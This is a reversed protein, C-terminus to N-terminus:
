EIVQDAQALVSAPITVGLAKATKMNIVFEFRTPQEVPLDGPRAGKLLKDVYPVVRRIDDGPLTGYTMLAGAEAMWRQGSILPLRNRAAFELVRTRQERQFMVEINAQVADARERLLRALASELQGPDRVELPLFVLGLTKTAPEIEHRVAAASAANDPNFLLAFRALRPMTDKLHQIMRGNWENGQNSIGTVNGGPRALSAVLGTREPNSVMVVIPVTSTARKATQAAETNAAVILDVNLQLLEGVLGAYGQGPRPWRYEIVLNQGEVYGRDRLGQVFIDWNPRPQPPPALPGSGLFGIHYTRQSQQGETAPPLILLGLLAATLAAAFKVDMLKM